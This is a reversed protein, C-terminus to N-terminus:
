TAATKPWPLSRGQSKGCASLGILEEFAGMGGVHRPMEQLLSDACKRFHCEVASGHMGPLVVDELEDMYRVGEDDPATNVINKCYDCRLSMLGGAVRM